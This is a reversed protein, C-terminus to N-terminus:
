GLTLEMSFVLELNFQCIMEQGIFMCVLGPFGIEQACVPIHVSHAKAGQRVEGPVCCSRQEPSHEEEACRLWKPESLATCLGWYVPVPSDRQMLPQGGWDEMILSKAVGGNTVLSSQMYM